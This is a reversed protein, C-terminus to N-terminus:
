HVASSPPVITENRLEGVAYLVEQFYRSFIPKMVRFRQNHGIMLLFMAVQEDINSNISDRLL